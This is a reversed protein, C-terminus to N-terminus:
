EKEEGRNCAWDKKTERQWVNCYWYEDEQIHYKCYECVTCYYNLGKALEEEIIEKCYIDRDSIGLNYILADADILRM